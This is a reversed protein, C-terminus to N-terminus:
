ITRRDFATEWPERPLPKMKLAWMMQRITLTPYIDDESVRSYIDFTERFRPHLYLEDTLWPDLESWYTSKNGECFRQQIVALGREGIRYLTCRNYVPHDCIYTEGYMSLYIDPKDYHHRM